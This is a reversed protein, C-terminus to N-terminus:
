SNWTEMNDGRWTGLLSLCVYGNSYLNPNFRVKSNGTTLLQMKPPSLPYDNTFFLDFIFCGNAYPTESSGTILIKM